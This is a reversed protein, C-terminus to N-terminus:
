RGTNAEDFLQALTRELGDIAIARAFENLVVSPLGHEHETFASMGVVEWATRGRAALESGHLRCALEAGEQTRAFKRGEAVLAKFIAQTAGPHAFLIDHVRRFIDPGEPAGDTENAM